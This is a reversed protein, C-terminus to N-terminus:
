PLFPLFPSLLYRFLTLGVARVLAV